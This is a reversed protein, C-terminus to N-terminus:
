RDNSVVEEGLALKYNQDEIDEKEERIGELVMDGAEKLFALCKKLDRKGSFFHNANGLKLKFEEAKTM